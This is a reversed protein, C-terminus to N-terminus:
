WKKISKDFRRSLATGGRWRSWKGYVYTELDDGELIGFWENTPVLLAKVSGTMGGDIFGCNGSPGYGYPDRDAVEIETYTCQDFTLDSDCIYYKLYGRCGQNYTIENVTPRYKLFIDNWITYTKSNVCIPYGTRVNLWTGCVGNNSLSLVLVVLLMCTMSFRMGTKVWNM